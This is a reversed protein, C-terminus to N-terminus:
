ARSIFAELAALKDHDPASMDAVLESGDEANGWVLVVDGFRGADNRLRLVDSGTTALADLVPKANRCGQITWEEGDWVHLAYGAAIAANVIRTAVKREGASTFRADM